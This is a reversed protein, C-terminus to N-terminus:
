ACALRVQMLSDNITFRKKKRKIKRKRSRIQHGHEAMYQLMRTSFHVAHVINVLHREPNPLTALVNDFPVHESLEGQPRFIFLNFSHPPYRKDNRHPEFAKCVKPLMAVHEEKNFLRSRLTDATRKNDEDGHFTMEYVVRIQPLVANLLIM